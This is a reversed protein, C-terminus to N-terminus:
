DWEPLQKTPKTTGRKISPKTESRLRKNEARLKALEQDKKALERRAVKVVKSVSEQKQADRKQKASEQPDVYGTDKYQDFEYFASVYLDAFKLVWALAPETPYAKFNRFQPSGKLSAWNLFIFRLFESVTINADRLPVVISRKIRPVDRTPSIPAVPVGEFNERMLRSWQEKFIAVGDSVTYRTERKTMHKQRLNMVHAIADEATQLKSPEYTRKLKKPM